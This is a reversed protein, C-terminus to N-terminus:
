YNINNYFQYVLFFYKLGNRLLKNYYKMTYKVKGYYYNIVNIKIIQILHYKETM